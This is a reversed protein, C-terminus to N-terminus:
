NEDKNEMLSAKIRERARHLRSKVTGAPVHLIVAIETVKLEDQYFLHLCQKDLDNLGPVQWISSQEFESAMTKAPLQDIDQGNNDERDSLRQAKRQLDVVRWRLTRYLWPKFLMPDRLSKISKAVSLWTDQVADQALDAQGCLRVAFGVLNRHYFAVIKHMAQKDGSQADLVLLALEANEM